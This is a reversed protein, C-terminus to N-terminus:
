VSPSTKISAASSAPSAEDIEVRQDRMRWVTQLLGQLLNRPEFSSSVRVARFKETGAFDRDLARCSEVVVSLEATTQSLFTLKFM